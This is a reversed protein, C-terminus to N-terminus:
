TVKSSSAQSSLVMVQIFPHQIVLKSDKHKIHLWRAEYCRSALLVVAACAVRRWLLHLELKAALVGQMHPDDENPSVADGGENELDPGPGLARHKGAPLVSKIGGFVTCCLRATQQKMMCHSCMLTSCQTPHAQCITADQCFDQMFCVALFLADTTTVHM